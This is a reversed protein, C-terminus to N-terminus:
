NFVIELEVSSGRQAPSAIIRQNSAIDTIIYGGAKVYAKPSVDVTMKHLASSTETGGKALFAM